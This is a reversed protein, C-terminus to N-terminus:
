WGISCSRSPIAIRARSSVGPIRAGRAHHRAAVAAFRGGRYREPSRGSTSVRCGISVARAEGRPIAECAPVPELRRPPSGVAGGSQVDQVFGWAYPQGSLAHRILWTAALSPPLTLRVISRGGAPLLAETARQTQHIAPEIQELYRRGTDTLRPRKGARDILATGLFEELRRVQHSIASETLGLSEAADRYEIMRPRLMFRECRPLRRCRSRASQCEGLTRCTHVSNLTLAADLGTGAAVGTTSGAALLTPLGRAQDSRGRARSRTTM